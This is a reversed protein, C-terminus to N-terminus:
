RDVLGLTHARARANLSFAVWELSSFDEATRTLDTLNRCDSQVLSAALM